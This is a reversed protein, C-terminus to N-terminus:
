EPEYDFGEWVLSVKRDTSVESESLFAAIASVFDDHATWFNEGDGNVFVQYSM